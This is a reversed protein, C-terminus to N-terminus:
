KSTERRKPAMSVTRGAQTSDARDPQQRRKTRSGKMSYPTTSVSQIQARQTPRASESMNACVALAYVRMVQSRDRWKKQALNEDSRISVHRQERQHTGALEIQVGDRRLDERKGLGTTRRCRRLPRSSGLGAVLNGSSQLIAKHFKFDNEACGDLDGTSVALRMANLEKQLEATNGKLAAAATRGTIEEIGARIEYAQHM